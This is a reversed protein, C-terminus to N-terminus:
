NKVVFNVLRGPVTITKVLKGKELYKQVKEDEKAEEALSEDDTGAPVEINARVKGNVQVVITMLEEKVLKEDWVPWPEGHVSEEHDLM